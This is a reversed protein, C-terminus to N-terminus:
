IQSQFSVKEYITAKLASKIKFELLHDYHGLFNHLLMKGVSVAFLSVSFVAGQRVRDNTDSEIVKLLQRCLIFICIEFSTASSVSLFLCLEIVGALNQIFSYLLEYRKFDCGSDKFLGFCMWDILDM